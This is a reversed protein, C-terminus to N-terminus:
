HFSMLPVPSSLLLFVTLRQSASDDQYSHTLILSRLPLLCIFLLYYLLVALPAHPGQLLRRGARAARVAEAPRGDVALSM